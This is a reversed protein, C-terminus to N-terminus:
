SWEDEDDPNPSGGGSKDKKPALDLLRSYKELMGIVKLRELVEPYTKRIEGTVTVVRFTHGNQMVFDDLNALEVRLRCFVDLLGLHPTKFSDRNIVHPLTEEWFKRYMPNKSPPPYKLTTDLDDEVDYEEYGRGTETSFKKKPIKHLGTRGKKLDNKRNDDTEIITGDSMKIKRGVVKKKSSTKNTKKPSSM